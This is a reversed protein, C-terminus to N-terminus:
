RTLLVCGVFVAQNIKISIIHTINNKNDHSSTWEILNIVEIQILHKRKRLRKKKSMIKTISKKRLTFTVLIILIKIFRSGAVHGRM